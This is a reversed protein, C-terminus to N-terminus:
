PLAGTTLPSAPTAASAIAFWITSTPNRPCGAESNISRASATPPHLPSKQEATCTSAPETKEGARWPKEVNEDWGVAILLRTSLFRLADSM